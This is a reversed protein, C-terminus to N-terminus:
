CHTSAPMLVIIITAATYYIKRQNISNLKPKQVRPLKIYVFSKEEEDGQQRLEIESVKSINKHEIYSKPFNIPM